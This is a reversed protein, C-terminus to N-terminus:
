CQNQYRVSHVNAFGHGVTVSDAFVCFTYGLVLPTAYDCSLSESEIWSYVLTYVKM